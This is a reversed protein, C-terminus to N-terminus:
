MQSTIMQVFEGESIIPIGLEKAKKMSEDYSYEGFCIKEAEKRAKVADKFDIYRGLYIPNNNCQIQM